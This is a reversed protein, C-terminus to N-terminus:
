GRWGPATPFPRTFLNSPPDSPDLPDEAQQSCSSTRPEPALESSSFTDFARIVRFSPGADDLDVVGIAQGTVTEDDGDDIYRKLEVVIARGDPSWRAAGAYEAGKTSALTTISGTAVDVAQLQSGPNHGDVNDIRTFAIQTGDPSWAPSDADRCPVRCDVLIAANSGDWDSTWLDRTSGSPGAFARWGSQDGSPPRRANATSSWSPVRSRHVDSQSPEFAAMRTSQRTGQRSASLGAQDGVARLDREGPDVVHVAM